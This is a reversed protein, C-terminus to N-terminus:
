PEMGYGGGCEHFFDRPCPYWVEVMSALFGEDAKKLTVTLTNDDTAVVTKINSMAKQYPSATAPDTVREYAFLFDDATVAEGSSWKSSYLAFVYTRGDESVTWDAAAPVPRGNDLAVLGEFLSAIVTRAAEDTAIAPDLTVPEASLPFRFGQGSKPSSSCATLLCSVLLFIPLIKALCRM